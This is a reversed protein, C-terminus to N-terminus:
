LAGTAAHDFYSIQANLYHPKLYCYTPPLPNLGDYPLVIAQGNQLEAFIKPQFMYEHQLSYTKAASVTTRHAAPRGTLMSVRADQGAETITYGPKLREVKGCLDAAMQASFDDSLTLFIKTRLGQLLTRWSEGSLTSRLSSISQTAVIPVCRAQRALSFFKEDGSPENEGTTAFAQYEDCVFLVPRRSPASDTDIRHVRGLVARQFDQKLMTGLARALGPNMAIPFNLAIVKGQEILDAIPPLPTGYVGNPNRAPDYMEKPPCFTHKVRPNDDFLSLFVSIGEIISTRLKPEIRMWDDEFWRKVAEFQAIKDAWRTPPTSHELHWPIGAAGLAEVLDSSWEAWTQKGTEDDSWSWGKLVGTFLHERKDLVVRRHNARFHREGEAIRVRLKDANIVHEYVQFLTVYDDLTQHLLIVFKVLNTSAQQWFPEKGRGFLNTMLTAIGYALAYADLDNHLPNYRYPSDLSVEVYDEARGQRVLIDRVQRCFDGKVELVLGAVKRAPDSFRYALLQEVYPYMCASTKGSGIAGAIFMGTYLGREPITLWTPAASREPSTRHHQEGLVLFLENRHEPAPYPPLPATNTQRGGRPVFIYLCSFGISALFFSSSFWLAAYTYAFGAYVLPRELRVLALIADEAPFPYVHLGAAGGIVSVALSLVVRYEVVRGM